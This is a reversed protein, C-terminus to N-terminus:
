IVEKYITTNIILEKTLKNKQYLYNYDIKKNECIIKPSIIVKTKFEDVIRWFSKKVENFKDYDVKIYIKDYKNLQTLYKPLSNVNHMAYVDDDIYKSITIAEIEGEVLYCKKSGNNRVEFFYDYEGDQSLAMYRFKNDPSIFRIKKFGGPYEFCVGSQTNSNGFDVVVPHVKESFTVGREMCYKEIMRRTFSMPDRIIISNKEFEEKKEKKFTTVMEVNTKSTNYQLVDKDTIFNYFLFKRFKEMGITQWKSFTNDGLVYDTLLKKYEKMFAIDINNYSLVFDIYLDYQNLMQAYESPTISSSSIITNKRVVDVAGNYMLLIGDSIHFQASMSNRDEILPNYALYYDNYKRYDRVYEYGINELLTEIFKSYNTIKNYKLQFNEIM